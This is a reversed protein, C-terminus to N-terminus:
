QFNEVTTPNQARFSQGYKWEGSRFAEARQVGLADNQFKQPQRGMWKEYDTATTVQKVKFIEDGKAKRGPGTTNHGGIKRVKGRDTTLDGEKFDKGPEIAGRTYTEDVGALKPLALSRCNWHIRGPGDEWPYDHGIPQPDAGM